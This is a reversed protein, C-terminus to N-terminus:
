DFYGLLNVDAYQDRDNGFGCAVHGEPTTFGFGSSRPPPADALDLKTWAERGPELSLVFLGKESTKGDATGGFVFLRRGVPDHMICGNRRGRPLDGAPALKSWAPPSASLDLAWADQAANVPDAETPFQAGGWVVFRSSEADLASFAGYRPDPRKTSTVPTWTATDGAIEVLWTDGLVTQQPVDTFGGYVVLRDGKPDYAMAHLQRGSKTTGQNALKEFTSTAVDLRYLNPDTTETDKWGVYGGLVFATKAGPVQVVRRGAGAEPVDGQPTWPTWQGSKVDLRWSDAIPKWQPDYGSGQLMYAADADPDYAFVAHERTQPGSGAPWTSRKWALAHKKLPLEITKREAGAVVDVKLSADALGYGARIRLVGPLTEVELNGTAVPELTGNADVALDTTRGEYVDVAGPANRWEPAPGRGPETSSSSSCATLAAFSLLFARKM